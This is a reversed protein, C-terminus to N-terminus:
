VSIGRTKLYVSLEKAKKALEDIDTDIMDEILHEVNFVVQSKSEFFDDPLLKFQPILVDILPLFLKSAEDISREGANYISQLLHLWRELAEEDEKRVLSCVFAFQLEALFSEKNGGHTDYYAQEFRSKQKTIFWDSLEEPSLNGPPIMPTESNLSIPYNKEDIYSTLEKWKLSMEMNRLMVPILAKNMAGSLALESYHKTNEPSDDIFQTKEYDYIKVVVGSPKLFCWFGEHMREDVKVSVYHLGPEVNAFGRFGGKIEYISLDLQAEEKPIDRLIIYGFMKKM